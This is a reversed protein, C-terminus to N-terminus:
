AVQAKPSEKPTGRKRIKGGWIGYESETTQAYDECPVKVPCSACIEKAAKQSAGRNPFFLGPGLGRCAAEQKWDEEQLLFSAILDVRRSM